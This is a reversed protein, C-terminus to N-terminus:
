KFRGVPDQGYFDRLLDYLDPHRNKLPKAREFFFETAVAFFEAPNTAGYEDLLTVRGKELSERLSDYAESMVRQWRKYAEKSDLVPTGDGRDDLFDLKHAFEHLVLNRGDAAQMGGLLAADYALVVPGRLWAEGLNSSGERVSGDGSGSLHKTQYGSPYVFISKVNNFYDHPRELILLAVQLSITQEVDATIEQGGCGEWRKEAAFIRAIDVLRTTAADDFGRFLDLRKLTAFWSPDASQGLQKRRRRTRFWRFIM